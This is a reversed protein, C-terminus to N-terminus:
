EYGFRSARRIQVYPCLCRKHMTHFTALPSTLGFRKLGSFISPVRSVRIGGLNPNCFTKELSLRVSAIEQWKEYGGYASKTDM